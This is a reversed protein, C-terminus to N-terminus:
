GLAAFLNLAPALASGFISGKLQKGVSESTALALYWWGVLV